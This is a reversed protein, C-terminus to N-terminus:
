IHILSLYSRLANLEDFQGRDTYVPTALLWAVARRTVKAEIGFFTEFFFEFVKGVLEGADPIGLDLPNPLGIGLGPTLDVGARADSPSAILLAALVLAAIVAAASRAPIRRLSRM